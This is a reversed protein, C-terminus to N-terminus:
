SVLKRGDAHQRKIGLDAVGRRLSVTTEVAEIGALLHKSIQLRLSQEHGLLGVLKANRAGPAGAHDDFGHECVLPEDFHVAEGFMTKVGDGGTRDLEVGLM